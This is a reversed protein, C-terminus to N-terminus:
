DRKDPPKAFYVEASSMAGAAHSLLLHLSPPYQEGALAFELQGRDWHPYLQAVHIVEPLHCSYGPCVTPEVRAGRVPKPSHAGKVWPCGM